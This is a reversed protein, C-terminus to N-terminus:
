KIVNIKQRTNETYSKVHFKFFASKNFHKRAKKNNCNKHTNDDERILFQLQAINCVKRLQGGKIVDQIYASVPHDM